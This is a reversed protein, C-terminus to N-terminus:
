KEKLLLNSPVKFTTGFTIGKIKLIDLQPRKEFYKSGLKIQL